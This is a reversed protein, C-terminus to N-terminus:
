PIEKTQDWSRPANSKRFGRDLMRPSTLTSLVELCTEGGGVEGCGGALIGLSPM